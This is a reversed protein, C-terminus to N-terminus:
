YLGGSGPGPATHKPPTALADVKESAAQRIAPPLLPIPAEPPVTRPFPLPAVADGGIDPLQEGAWHLGKKMVRGPHWVDSLEWSATKGPSSTSPPPVSALVTRRPSVAAPEAPPSAPSAPPAAVEVPPGLPALATSPKGAAPADLPAIAAESARPTAPPTPESPRAARASPAPQEKPLAAEQRLAPATAPLAAPRLAPAPLADPGPLAVPAPMSLIPVPAVTPAPSPRAAAPLTVPTMPRFPRAAAPPNAPISATAAARGATTAAPMRSDDPATTIVPVQHHQVFNFALNGVVGVAVAYCFGAAKSVALRAIKSM